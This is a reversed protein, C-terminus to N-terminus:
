SQGAAKPEEKRWLRPYTGERMVVRKISFALGKPAAGVQATTLLAEALAVLEGKGTTLVVPNGKEIGESLSLVGPIALRAGHCIADVASDRMTVRKLGSLYTEVPRVARRVGTDDGEKLRYFADNLQHLTVFGDEEKIPGVKTRRLEVMTAGVGLVEGIDYILKRVYTGAECLCRLLYLNGQQEAIELAYVTRTRVDRRVSSRQPPRQYIEGTFTKTTQAVVEPPVSSHIRMLAWYEKPFMLLLALAKTAQGLGIPLLGSVGPDLTGSHGAKPIGILRRVWAVVEHSTPGRPKDVPIIGYDLLAAVPRKNPPSGYAPDTPEEDLVVERVSSM